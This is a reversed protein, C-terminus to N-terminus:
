KSKRVNCVQSVIGKKVNDGKIGKGKNVSSGYSPGVKRWMIANYHM